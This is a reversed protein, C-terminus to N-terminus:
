LETSVVRLLYAIFPCEIVNEHWLVNASSLREKSHRLAFVMSNAICM